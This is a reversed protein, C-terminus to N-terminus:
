VTHSGSFDLQVHQSSLIQDAPHVCQEIASDPANMQPM